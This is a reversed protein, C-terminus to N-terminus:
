CEYGTMRRSVFSRQLQDNSGFCSRPDKAESLIVHELEPTSVKLVADM